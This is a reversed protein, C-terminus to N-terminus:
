LELLELLEMEQLDVMVVVLAVTAEPEAETLAVQEALRVQGQAVASLHAV